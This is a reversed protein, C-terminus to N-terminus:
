RPNERGRKAMVLLLVWGSHSISLRWYPVCCSLRQVAIPCLLQGNIEEVTCVILYLWFSMLLRLFVEGVMESKPDRCHVSKPIYIEALVPLTPDAGM